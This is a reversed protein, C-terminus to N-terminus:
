SLTELLNLYSQAVDEWTSSAEKFRSKAKVEIEERASDSNLLASVQAIWADPNNPDAYVAGDGCAEQAYPRNAVVQARGLSMAEYYPLGFSELKSPMVVVTAHEMLAVVQTHPLSGGFELRDLVKLKQARRFLAPLSKPSATLYCKLDPFEGSLGKMMDALLAHNKHPGGSAVYCLYPAKGGFRTPKTGSPELATIASPIVVIKEEPISFREMLGRKMYQTQVTVLSVTPLVARFYARMMTMKLAFGPPMSFDLEAPAAALYSQHVLLLHPIPCGPLSTDGMSFLKQAGFRRMGLRMQINETAMKQLLGPRTQKVEVNEGLTGPAIGYTLAWESPLWVLFEHQPALRVFQLLVNRGVTGSGFGRLTGIHLALKM